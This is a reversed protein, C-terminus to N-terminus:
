ILKITTIPRTQTIYLKGNKILWEVDVPVRWINYIEKVKEYIQNIYNFIIDTQENVTKANKDIIITTPEGYGGVVSGSKGKQYEIVCEEENGTVPNSSFCVGSWEADIYEQILIGIYEIKNTNNHLKQYARVREGKLSKGCKIIASELQTKEVDLISEFCGAWSFDSSDEGIASSRVVYKEANIYNSIDKIIDGLIKKDRTTEYQKWIQKPLVVGKPVDINYESLKAISYAKGGIENIGSKYAESYKMYKLEKNVM